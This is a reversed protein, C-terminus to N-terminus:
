VQNDSYQVKNDGKVAAGRQITQDYSPPESPGAAGGVNEGGSTATSQYNPHVVQNSSEVDPVTQYRGRASEVFPIGDDPYKVIIYWCHLVGPLGGLLCLILNLLTDLSFLGRKIAVPLPPVFLGLLALLIDRTFTSSSNSM